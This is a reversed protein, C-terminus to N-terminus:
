HKVTNFEKVFDEVDKEGGDDGGGVQGGSKPPPAPATRLSPNAEVADKIAAEVKSSFDDATPDLDGLKAMFARSDTLADPNAGAKFAHRLVANEVKTSRAERQAATLDGALKKPDPTEDDKLGLAKAIADKFEEVQRTNGKARDEWKRAEAKWDTEDKPPDAPPTAPDKPPDSPPNAPPQQDDKPPDAPPNAPPTNTPDNDPM